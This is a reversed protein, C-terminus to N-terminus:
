PTEPVSERPRIVLRMKNDEIAYVAFIDRLESPSFEGLLERENAISELSRGLYDVTRLQRLWVGPNRVNEDHVNRLQQVAVDLEEPTPGDTAFAQFMRLLEDALQDAREPDTPTQVSFLGFGPWTTGTRSSVGPSYALGLEERIRDVMRSSLIRASLRMALRDREDWENPGYFGAIVFAQPTSVDPERLMEIPGMPRDMQRADINTRSSVPAREPLSGLYIAALEIAADVDLDGVLAVEIPGGLQADLWEQAAETTVANVREATNLRPRSDDMPYMADIIAKLAAGQPLRDLTELTRLQGRRWQEIAADEVTPATLLLHVLQMARDLEDPSSSLGITLGDADSGGRVSAKWGTTLDDIQTSSLGGGAPRALATTAADTLGRTNADENVLGGFVHISGLVEGQRETMRKIHVRVGNGLWVSTVGTAEHTTREVVEGAIPKQELLTDARVQARYPEPEVDLVAVGAELLEAESPTREDAVTQLSFVANEFAFTRAFVRNVEDLGVTPLLERLLELQQAVSMFPEGRATADVLSGRLGRSPRTPEAAVAREANAILRRKADDLEQGTFGHLTARRVEQGLEKLVEQWRGNESRGTAQTWRIAGVFDGTSVNGSLMSLQGDQVGESLRDNMMSNGLSQVLDDRYQGVTTTPEGPLDIFNIAVEERTEEPDSAVIARLGSTPRVGVERPEPRPVFEGQGFMAEISPTVDEAIVDGVVLLTMNSPVYWTDYYRKIPERGATTLVEVTGIPIRQGFQSDPAIREIVEYLVRQQPSLSARREELIIAREQEIGEEPLLLNNAVDSLFTLGAELTAAENNPLSITYGTRDFGTVANQHRGFSLGLGEFFPRVTGPPFSTSGAFAVHELFHALGRQDDDENLSGSHVHLWLEVRGPPEANPLIAWALGNDLTGRILRPDEALPQAADREQGITVSTLLLTAITASRAIRTATTTM